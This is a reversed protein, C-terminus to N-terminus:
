KNINFITRKRPILDSVGRATGLIRDLAPFLSGTEQYLKSEAGLRINELLTRSTQASTLRTEAELNMIQKAMQDLMLTSVKQDATTKAAVASNVIQKTMETKTQEHLNRSAEKKQEMDAVMNGIQAKAVKYNLMTTAMGRAPNEPTIMAGAPTSAGHGGTVSLIPNLGAKEMDKVERQHATSSMREQFDMQKKAMYAGVASSVLSGGIEGAIGGLPSGPSAPKSSTVVMENDPM